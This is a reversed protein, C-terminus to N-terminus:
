VGKKKQPALISLLKALGKSTNRGKVLDAIPNMWSPLFNEPVHSRTFIHTHCNIIKIDIM